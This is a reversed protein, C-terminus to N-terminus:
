LFEALGSTDVGPIALARVLREAVKPWTLLAAHERALAGLRQATHPDALREMATVIQDGDHPDVLLRLGAARVVLTAHRVLTLHM